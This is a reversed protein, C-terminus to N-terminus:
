CPLTHKERSLAEVAGTRYFVLISCTGQEFLQLFRADLCTLCELQVIPIRHIGVETRPWLSAM